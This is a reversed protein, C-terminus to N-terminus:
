KRKKIYVKAFACTYTLKNEKQIYLHIYTHTHKVNDNNKWNTNIYIIQIWNM